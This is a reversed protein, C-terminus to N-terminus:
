GEATTSVILKGGVDFADMQCGCDSNVTDLFMVFQDAPRQWTVRGDPETFAVVAAQVPVNSWTWARVGPGGGTFGGVDPRPDRADACGYGGNAGSCRWEEGPDRHAAALFGPGARGVNVREVGEISYARDWLYNDDSPSPDIETLEIENEGTLGPIVGVPSFTDLNAESDAAPPVSDGFPRLWAVAAVAVVVVLFGAVSWVMGSRRVAPQHGISVVRDYTLPERSEAVMEGLATRVVERLQDSM